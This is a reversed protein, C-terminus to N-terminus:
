LFIHNAHLYMLFISGVCWYQSLSSLCSTCKHVWVGADFYIIGWVLLHAPPTCACGCVPTLVFLGGSGFSSHSPIRPCAVSHRCTLSSCPSSKMTLSQQVWWPLFTVLSCTKSFNFFCSILPSGIRLSAQVTWIPPHSSVVSRQQGAKRSDLSWEIHSGRTWWWYRRWGKPDGTVSNEQMWSNMLIKMLMIWPSYIWLKQSANNIKEGWNVFKKDCDTAGQMTINTEVINEFVGANDRPGGSCFIFFLMFTDDWCTVEM